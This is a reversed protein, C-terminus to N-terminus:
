SVGRPSTPQRQCGVQQARYPDPTSPIPASWVGEGRKIRLNGKNDVDIRLRQGKEEALRAVSALFFRASDSDTHFYM